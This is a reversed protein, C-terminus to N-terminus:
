ANSPTLSRPHKVIAVSAVAPTRSSDSAPSNTDSWAAGVYEHRLRANPAQAYGIPPAYEAVLTQVAGPRRLLTLLQM